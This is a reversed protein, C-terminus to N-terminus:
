KRAARNMFQINGSCSLLLVGHPLQDLMSLANGELLTAGALRRHIQLARQLHPVLVKFFDLQDTGFPKNPLACASIISVSPGDQRLMASIGGVLGIRRGYDNYFESKELDAKSVYEEGFRMCGPRLLGNELIMRAWPDHQGFYVQYEKIAEPDWRVATAISPAPVGAAFYSLNVCHGNLADAFEDLFCPWGAPDVAAEYILDVLRLLTKNVDMNQKRSAQSM